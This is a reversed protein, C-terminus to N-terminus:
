MRRHIPFAKKMAEGTTEAWAHIDEPTMEALPKPFAFVIREPSPRPDDTGTTVREARDRIVAAVLTRVGVVM